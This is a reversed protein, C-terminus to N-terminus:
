GGRLPHNPPRISALAALLDGASPFGSLFRGQWRRALFAAPVLRVAGLAAALGLTVAVPRARRPNFAALLILFLTCWAFLHVGGRLLMAFMVLALLAPTAPRGGEVLELLGLVFVPLLFHAAWMSHGVAMHAVLHGNLFFLLFLFSFALWGLGYRRRLRLLGAFGLAYFVLTDMLVYHPISLAGLLLVPPACNLEPVALLKRGALIPRSVFLPLRREVVAQRLVTYHRFEKPWDEVTPVPGSARGDASLLAAWTMAGALFLAALATRERWGPRTM